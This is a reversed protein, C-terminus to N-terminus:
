VEIGFAEMLLSLSTTSKKDAAAAMPRRLKLRETPVQGSTVVEQGGGEHLEQQFVTNKKILSFRVKCKKRRAKEKVGLRMVRTRLDVALMEVSDAMTVGKSCHRLEDKLFCCSAIMKSKGEKGNGTVSLKRGKRDIKREIKGDGKKGHKGSGQEEGYSRRSTM